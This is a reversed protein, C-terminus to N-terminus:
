LVYVTLFMALWVADVFHWFMAWMRLATHHQVSFASRLARPVLTGLGILGVLVHLAHFATLGYFVSGYIGSSPLLGGLWMRRWVIVQLTCFAVGLAIAAFLFRPLAKPRAHRVARLGLALALSSALLVVTNFAPLGLPVQAEGPPPWVPAKLRVAGYAFFLAAFTMTWAGLFIVMGVYATADRRPPKPPPFKVVDTMADAIM